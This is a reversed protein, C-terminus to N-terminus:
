NSIILAVLGVLDQVNVSGDLNYDAALAANGTLVSLGMIHNVILVIDQINLLSDFNVDGPIGIGQGSTVIRIDDVAAEVLSGGNIDEAIFQIQIQHYSTLYQPLYFIKQSWGDPSETTSVLTIWDGSTGSRIQVTWTDANPNNGLDNTYWAWYTLIPQMGTPINWWPSRLTTHGGDVDNDGSGGGPPTNGTFFCNAGDESHDEEPQAIQNGEITGVPNGWAWIGSSADDGTVGLTWNGNNECPDVLITTFSNIDGVLFLNTTLPAGPPSYVFQGTNNSVQIYYQIISGTSQPPIEGEWQNDATPTMALSTFISNNVNYFIQASVISDGPALIIAEVVTASDPVGSQVPIHTIQFPTLAKYANARKGMQLNGVNDGDLLLAEQQEVTLTPFESRILAAVGAALPTAMSTGDWAEYYNNRYPNNPDTCSWINTGPACMDVWSGYNSFSARSDNSNTAGVSIVGPAGAPYSIGSSGDNGAAALVICGKTNRAYLVASNFTASSPGGGWSNSIIDAGNDAAYLLANTTVDDYANPFIKVGMIKSHFAVGTIGVFNDGVGAAIGACHSGHDEAHYPHWNWDHNIDNDESQNNNPGSFDWGHIDDVKGNFDDDLGNDPIEGPNTWLNAVLDPHDTDVGTDIIAILVSDAGTQIDWAEPDQVRPHHWSQSFYPDNPIVFLERKYIPEAYEIWQNAKSLLHTISPVNVAASFKVIYVRELGFTNNNGHNAPFQHFLQIEQVPYDALIQDVAPLNLQKSIGQPLVTSRAAAATIRVFMKRPHYPVEAPQAVLALGRIILAIFLYPKKFYM